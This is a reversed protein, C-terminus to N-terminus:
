PEKAIAEDLTYSNNLLDAVYLEWKQQMVKNLSHETEKDYNNEM